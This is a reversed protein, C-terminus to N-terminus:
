AGAIIMLIKIIKRSFAVMLILNSPPQFFGKQASKSLDALIHVREQHFSM